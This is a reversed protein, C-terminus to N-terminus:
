CLWWGYEPLLFTETMMILKEFQMQWEDQFLFLFSVSYPFFLQYLILTLFIYTSCSFLNSYLQIKVTNVTTYTTSHLFSNYFAKSVSLKEKRKNLKEPKINIKNEKRKSKRKSSSSACSIETVHCTVHHSMMPRFCPLLIQFIIDSCMSAVYYGQTLYSTSM